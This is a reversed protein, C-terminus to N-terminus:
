SWSCICGLDGTGSGSGCGICGAYLGLVDQQWPLDFTQKRISLHCCIGCAHEGHEDSQRGRLRLYCYSPSHLIHAAAAAECDRVHHRRSHSLFQSMTTSSLRRPFTSGSCPDQRCTRFSRHLTQEGDAVCHAPLEQRQTIYCRSRQSVTRRQSRLERGRHTQEGMDRLVFPDRRATTIAKLSNRRPRSSQLKHLAIARSVLRTEYSQTGSWVSEMARRTCKPRAVASSSQQRSDGDSRCDSGGAVLLPDM